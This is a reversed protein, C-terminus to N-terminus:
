NGVEEPLEYWRVKEGIKARMKWKLSKPEEEIKQRLTKLENEVKKSLNEELNLNPLYQLVRDINLTVTKYFGWDNALLKAIYNVDFTNESDKEGASFDVLFAVTDKIDKENIEYIQLKTLLLDSPPITIKYHSLRDKLNWTHCMRFEDLFVDIRKEGDYYLLRNYGHLANFREEPRLGVKEFAKKLKKSSEKNSIFDIDKYVRKLSPHSSGNPALKAIALGGLIKLVAGEEEAARIIELARELPNALAKKTAENPETM